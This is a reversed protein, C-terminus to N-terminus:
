SSHVTIPKMAPLEGPGGTSFEPFTTRLIDLFFFSYGSTFLCMVKDAVVYKVHSKQLIEIEGVNLWNKM